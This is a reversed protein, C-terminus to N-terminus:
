QFSISKGSISPEFYDKFLELLTIWIAYIIVYKIVITFTTIIIKSIGQTEKEQIYCM